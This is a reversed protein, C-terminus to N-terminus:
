EVTPVMHRAAAGKLAQKEIGWLEIVTTIYNDGWPEHPHKGESIIYKINYRNSELSQVSSFYMCRRPWKWLAHSWTSQNRQEWTPIWQASITNNWPVHNIVLSSQYITAVHWLNIVMYSPYHCLQTLNGSSLNEKFLLAEHSLKQGYKPYLM